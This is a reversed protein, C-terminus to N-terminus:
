NLTLPQLTPQKRALWGNIGALVTASLFMVADIEPHDIGIVMEHTQPDLGMYFKCQGNGNILVKKKSHKM